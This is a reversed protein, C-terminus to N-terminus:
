GIRELASKVVQPDFQRRVSRESNAVSATRLAAPLNSGGLVASFRM